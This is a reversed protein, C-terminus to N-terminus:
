HDPHAFIMAPADLIGSIQCTVGQRPKVQSDLITVATPHEKFEADVNFGCRVGKAYDELSPQSPIKSLDYIYAHNRCSVYPLILNVQSKMSIVGGPLRPQIFACPLALYRSGLFCATDLVKYLTIPRVGHERVSAYLVPQM